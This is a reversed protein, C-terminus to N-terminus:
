MMVTLDISLSVVWTSDGDTFEDIRKIKWKDCWIKDKLSYKTPEKDM